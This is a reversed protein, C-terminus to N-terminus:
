AQSVPVDKVWEFYGTAPIFVQTWEQGCWCDWEDKDINRWTLPQCRHGILEFIKASLNM